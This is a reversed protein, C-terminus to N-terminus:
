EKAEVVRWELVGGSCGPHLDVELRLGNTTVPGFSVRNYQDRETGFASAGPAPKWAKGDRYLLRWRKPVRCHGTARDDFWYVEVASVRARRKFDYQVWERTGRHDWWTFRPPGLDHSNPPEIQDNLATVTDGPWCHSASAKAQSAVTPLRMPEAAAVSAPLWVLMGGAERNDWVAYPVALLPVPKTTPSGAWRISATGKVVTAGGLLDPRHEAALGAGADLAMHRLGVEHDTGELCYVIPGRQLAVRGRNAAVRPHAAVSRVSMPLTLEVRDGARWTRRISAYGKAVALAGVAEGNLKLVPRECWGPIRLLLPFTAARESELSLTIAREWPFRTKQSVRVSVGGLRVTARSAMYLNVYLAEDSRAYVYQGITPFVRVVNSPCCACGYWPKRHHSGRSALPNVYFFRRGDLSTSAPLANYLVREMVDVYKGDPELLAMRHAFFLLGIAACTEAYATDNPLEYDDGFAEGGRRAGVGGTIYMKRLTTSDWLRRCAGLLEADGTEAAVDAMAACQYMMRVAHGVAESQQRVPLHDQSYAGYLKHGEANGRQDLFFQALKLYRKAGTARYLRVLGTEIQQHEPPELRKGPGFVSDIHDALKVAVDLLTRKGTVEFHAAGAEILHGACYLEHRAGPHIHRWREKPRTLTIYTNLYGDPQQAAAILAITEDLRKQLKADPHTALAYAAGEVIKFVDSDNFHAGEYKGKLRGAAKAFNRLRGTRECMEFCHPLSAERNARIRPAWFADEVRVDTFPVPRLAGAAATCPMLLPLALALIERIM